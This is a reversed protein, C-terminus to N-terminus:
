TTGASTGSSGKVAADIMAQVETMQAPTFANAVEPAVAVEPSVPPPVQEAAPVPTAVPGPDVVPPPPAPANTPGTAPPVVGDVGLDKEITRLLDLEADKEIESLYPVKEVLHLLIKILNEM